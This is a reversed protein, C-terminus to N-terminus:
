ELPEIRKLEQRQKSLEWDTLLEDIHLKRWDNVLVLARPSMHGTTKGSSIEMVVEDDGYKAHFHPLGHERWYM